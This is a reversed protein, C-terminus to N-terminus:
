RLLVYSHRDGTAGRCQGEETLFELDLEPGSSAMAFRCFLIVVILPLFYYLHVLM